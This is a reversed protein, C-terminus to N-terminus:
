KDVSLVNDGDLSHLSSWAISLQVKPSEPYMETLLSLALERGSASRLLEGAIRARLREGAAARLPEFGPTLELTEPDLVHFEEELGLDFDLANEFRAEVEEFYADHDAAM